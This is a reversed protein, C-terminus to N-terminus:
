PTFTIDIWQAPQVEYYEAPVTFPSCLNLARFARQTFIQMPPDGAPPRSPERLEPAGLLSGDRDFRIRIVARLRKADAMDDQDNWCGRSILQSRIFDAVTVTMDKNNGAGARPKADEVKSLDSATKQSPPANKKNREVSKLVSDLTDELNEEKKPEAKKPEPKKPEPKVEPEKAKETPLIEPAEEPEPAAAPAAEAPTAEEAAEEEVEAEPQEEVVPAVNTEPGITLLEVPLVVMPTPENPMLTPAVVFGAAVLAVHLLVSFPVGLRM